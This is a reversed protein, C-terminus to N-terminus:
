GVSRDSVVLGACSSYRASLRSRTPHQALNSDVSQCGYPLRWMKPRKRKAPSQLPWAAAEEGDALEARGPVWRLIQSTAPSAKARARLKFNRVPIESKGM